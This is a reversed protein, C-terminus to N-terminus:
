ELYFKKVDYQIGEEEQFARLPSLFEPLESYLGEMHTDPEGSKLHIVRVNSGITEIRNVVDPHERTFIDIKMGMNGLAAALQRVYVNM